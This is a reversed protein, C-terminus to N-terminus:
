HHTPDKYTGSPENGTIELFSGHFRLVTAALIRKFKTKHTIHTRHVFLSDIFFIVLETETNIDDLSPPTGRYIENPQKFLWHALTKGCKMDNYLPTFLYSFITHISNTEWGCQFILAHMPINSEGMTNVSNKKQCHSQLFEILEDFKSDELFNGFPYESDFYLCYDYYFRPSCILLM